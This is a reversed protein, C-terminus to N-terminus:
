NNSIEFSYMNWVRGYIAFSKTFKGGMKIYFANAEKNETTTSVLFKYIKNQIYLETLKEFLKSAIGQRKFKHDVSLIIIEALITRQTALGYAYTQILKKIISPHLLLRTIISPLLKLFHHHLIQRFLNPTNQSAILIGILLNNKYYGLSFVGPSNIIVEHLNKLFKMGFGPLFDNPMGELHLKASAKADNVALPKISYQSM